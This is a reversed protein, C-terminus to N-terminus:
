REIKVQETVEFQLYKHELKLSELERLHDDPRELYEAIQDL